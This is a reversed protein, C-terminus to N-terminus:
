VASGEQEIAQPMRGALQTLLDAALEPPLEIGMEDGARRQVEAILDAVTPGAAGEANATVLQAPQPALRLNVPAGKRARVRSKGALLKKVSAAATEGIARAASTLGKGILSKALWRTFGVGLAGATLGAAAGGAPGAGLFGAAAGAATAAGVVVPPLAFKVAFVASEILAAPLVGFRRRNRDFNDKVYSVVREAGNLKAGVFGLSQAEQATMQVRQSRRELDRFFAKGVGTGAAWKLLGGFKGELTKQKVAAAQRDKWEAVKQVVKGAVKGAKTDASQVARGVRTKGMAKGAAAAVGRAKDAVRGVVGPQPEAAGSGRMAQYNADSLVRGGPSKWSGNQQQKWDAWAFAEVDQGSPASDEVAAAIALALAVKEDSVESVDIGAAEMVRKAEAVPDAEEAHRRAPVNLTEGARKREKAASPEIARRLGGYVLGALRFPAGALKIVSGWIDIGIVQSSIGAPTLAYSTGAAALPLTVAATGLGALTGAAAPVTQRLAKRAAVKLRAATMHRGLKDGLMLGLGAGVSTGVGVGFPGGVLTGVVAGLGGGAAAGALPTLLRPDKAAGVVRGFVDAVARFIRSAREGHKADLAPKQADVAATVQPQAKVAAAARVAVQEEPTARASRRLLEAEQQDPTMDMLQELRTFGTRQKPPKGPAPPKGGTIAATAGALSGALARTDDPQAPAPPPSPPPAPKGAPPPKQAAKAKGGKGKMRQYVPDSLVRGGPSKWKGGEGQTWDDWGFAEFPRRGQLGATESFQSVDTVEAVPKVGIVKKLVEVGAPGTPIFLRTDYAVRERIVGDAALLNQDSYGPGIIEIRREGGVRVPKLRWGNVLRASKRGGELDAHVREPAFERRAVAVGLNKSLADLQNSPIHRGVSARADGEPKFRYIKPRDTKPIRDWVPLLSGTLFHEEAEIFQPLSAHEKEWEARATAEDVQEWRAPTELEYPSPKRRDLGAPGYLGVQRTVNGTLTDTKDPWKSAARVEGTAANRYYGILDRMKQNAAFPRYAPRTFATASVLRTEAGTKPDTYVVKDDRKELRDARYNEVGQDLTGSTAAAEVVKQLRTDFEDFVKGQKAVRLSLLRNLFQSMPPPEVSKPRGDKDETAFGLQRMTEKYPLDPVRDREIDSFLSDLAQKAERSELNDAASFMGGSGAQRQGRTLAGLQDLRRAITSVFRKQAKLQEIEVLRYHPAEAQNTRHTRGLGQVANDARWGPQLMYHVRKKQNAATRDAHYSRGTGGADSFVLLKKKGGQFAAAESVNAVAPNRAELVRRTSGDPQTRYVLREGRGTAEAVADPGFHNVIQDLPSEPIRLGGLQDLLRERMAVAQPDQVPNGGSDKVVRTQTNGEADTFQEYRHVPFSKALYGMLIERPSVDIHEYDGDDAKDVARKTAAEMTNVLQVVPARGEAIDKEMAGIVSPTQMSTMMQNFFRQQAGWFQSKAAARAFRDEKGGTVELAADINQLVSQWGDAAADYQAQQDASLSHTLRDYTVQGKPTGDNLSLSRANYLGGAKLSQAVAEMAAVGGETMDGIFQNKDAFATGKGWLGLRDAYALNSVETAGTASVYVVRANPLLKQLEVGALAKQSPGREGRPGDTALSNAMAHAEDFAVVGDFDPGLWDALRKLNSPAAPDKPKSKLTDYTVFAIGEAPAKDGGKLKDFPVVLKEDMGVDRWDRRADELLPSKLSVWVHKKRGQNWNDAIVGAVQRGKGAGTGDGIFFGRRYAVGKEDPELFQQHSQGAYAVNELAADSLAGSAIVDPSLTPAYTVPPPKIASMAASEDLKAPHPRAGAFRVAPRYGEYLSETMDAAPPDDKSKQAVGNVFYVGNAARGTFGPEPPAAADGSALPTLREPPRLRPVRDGPQGAPKGDAGLGGAGVDGSGAATGDAARGAGAVGRGRGGGGPAARLGAGAAVGGGGAVAAGARGRVGRAGVGGAGGGAALGGAADRGSPGGAAAGTAAARGTADGPTTATPQPRDNRVGELLPILGAATAVDGRVAPRGDPQEKDIVLVRTGFATGYKAYEAGAVGVNARLTYGREALSGFWEAYVPSVATAGRNRGSAKRPEDSMGEGVIAVLRGGPALLALAEDIHKAATGLDRKDLRGATASFPPNMVVATPAVKGKLIAGIQEANEGYVAGGTVARLLAARKPDLENGVVTAGSNAAHVALSGTGGSPELVVDTPKLNALWAVAYAYHPPTSFQQFADKNGSRNTQTPLQRLVDDLINRTQRVAGAADATPDTNGKLALNVGAELADYADSPGYGGQARSKGYATDALAFLEKATFPRGARLRAAVQDALSLAPPKPPAAAVPRPAAAPAAKPVPAPKSAKPAAPSEEPAAARLREFVPLTLKRKGSPSVMRDGQRSWDEWAFAELVESLRTLDSLYTGIHYPM